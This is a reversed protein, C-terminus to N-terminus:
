PYSEQFLSYVLNEEIIETKRPLPLLNKISHKMRALSFPKKDLTRKNLTFKTSTFVMSTM